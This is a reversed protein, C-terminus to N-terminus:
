KFAHRLKVSSVLILVLGLIYLIEGNSVTESLKLAPLVSDVVVSFVLALIGMVTFVQSWALKGGRLLYSTYTRYTAILLGLFIIVSSITM